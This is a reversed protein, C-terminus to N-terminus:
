FPIDDDLPAAKSRFATGSFDVALIQPYKRNVWVRIHSPILLSNIDVLAEDVTEPVGDLDGSRARWWDRAKKGAFGDHELCVWEDFKRLGCFYTVKLSAPTKNNKSYNVSDVEFVEVQPEESEQSPRGALLEDTSARSVIKTEIPFEAGCCPCIRVSTHCYTNCTECIKVPAVGGGGKGPKGPIKPDNIPGLRRTNGAFDLVLCDKKGGWPRTGRGLMQVWLGPSATPRLMGILDIAPFDFGTTLINNNVLARYRGAKFEAITLDREESSMKSHVCAAKVGMRDLMVAIHQAHEIGTAFILWHERDQGAYYLEELAAKTIEEKDVAGQLENLVYEGGQIRVSDVELEHQTRKPILPALFGDEILKNFAYLGTIDYCIDTFLGEDTIMGQKLRFPTASFGIVKLNPNWKSILRFFSQYMTSGKPSVLHCEDVLALDTRAFLEPVKHISQIGAYTIQRGVDKRDLGASYIGAPASPWLHLLKDYNQAILEKVHTLMLIRTSPYRYLARRVFEGIVISKGTGTPMAVVPNGEKEEFYDFVSQVAEEQYYRLEM